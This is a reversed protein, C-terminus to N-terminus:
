LNLYIERHLDPNGVICGIRCQRSEQTYRTSCSFFPRRSEMGGKEEGGEHESGGLEARSYTRSSCSSAREWRLPDSRAGKGNGRKTGKGAVEVEVRGMGEIEIGHRSSGPTSEQNIQATSPKAFERGVNERWSRGGVTM